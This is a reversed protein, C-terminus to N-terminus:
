DLDLMSGETGRLSRIYSLVAYSVFVTWTRKEIASKCSTRRAEAKRLMEPLLNVLFGKNPQWIAGMRYKFGTNFCHYWLSGLIDKHLQSLKGETNSVVWPTCNTAPSAQM